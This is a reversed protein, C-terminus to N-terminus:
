IEHTNGPKKQQFLVDWNVPEVFYWDALTQIADQEGAASEDFIGALLFGARAATKMAYLSDEFVVTQEPVTELTEAAKLFIAPSDKGAGVESCTLFLDFYPLLGTRERAPEIVCRDRATAVALRVGERKLRELLEPISPKAQVQTRYQELVMGNIEEIITEPSDTIGYETRCYDAIQSMSMTRVREEMGPKPICGKEILYQEGVHEWLPMSDLLTGDVDFIAASFEM